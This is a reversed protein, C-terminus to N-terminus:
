KLGHRQVAHVLDIMKWGQAAEQIKIANDRNAAIEAKHSMVWANWEARRTVTVDLTWEAVIAEVATETRKASEINEAIETRYEDLTKVEDKEFGNREYENM